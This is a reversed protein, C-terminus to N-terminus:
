APIHRVDCGQPQLEVDCGYVSRLDGIVRDGRM